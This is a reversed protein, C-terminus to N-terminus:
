VVNVIKVDFQLAKGALPHNFDLVAKEERIEHVRIPFIGGEPDQIALVAGPLRFQEPLSELDVERFAEKVVQGYAQDASLLVKKTDGIRLGLLEQELAPFVQKTGLVFVLPEEGVNTDIMTGDELFVSYELSVMKGKEIM